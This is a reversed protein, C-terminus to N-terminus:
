GTGLERSSLTPCRPFWDWEGRIVENPSKVCPVMFVQFACQTGPHFFFVFFLSQGKEQQQGPPALSHDASPSDPGQPKVTLSKDGFFSGPGPARPAGLLSRSRLARTSDGGAACAGGGTKRAGASRPTGPAPSGMSASEGALAPAGCGRARPAAPAIPLWSRRIWPLSKVQHTRLARRGRSAAPRPGPPQPGRARTQAARLGLHRSRPGQSQASCARM